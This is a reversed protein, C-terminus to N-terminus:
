SYFHLGSKLRLKKEKMLEKNEKDQTLLINPKTTNQNEM